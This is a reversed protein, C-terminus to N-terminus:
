LKSIGRRRGPVVVVYKADVTGSPYLAEAGAGGIHHRGCADLQRVDEIGGQGEM